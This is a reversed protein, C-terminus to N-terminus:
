LLSHQASRKAVAISFALPLHGLNHVLNYAAVDNKIISFWFGGLGEGNSIPHILPM